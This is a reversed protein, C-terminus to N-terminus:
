KEAEKLQAWARYLALPETPATAYIQDPREEITDITALPWGVRYTRVDAWLVDERAMLVAKAELYGDGTILQASALFMRGDPTRFLDGYVARPNLSRDSEIDRLSIEEWGCEVAILRLLKQDNM